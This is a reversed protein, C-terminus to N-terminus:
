LPLIINFEKVKELYWNKHWWLTIVISGGLLSALTPYLFSRGQAAVCCGNVEREKKVAVILDQELFCHLMLLSHWLGWAVIIIKKNAVYDLKTHRSWSTMIIKFLQTKLIKLWGKNLRIIYLSVLCFWSQVCTSNNPQAYKFLIQANLANLLRKGSDQCARADNFVSGHSLVSSSM